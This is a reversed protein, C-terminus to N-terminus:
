PKLGIGGALLEQLRGMVADHMDGVEVEHTNEFHQFVATEIIQDM